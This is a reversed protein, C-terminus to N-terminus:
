KKLNHSEGEVSVRKKVEREQLLKELSVEPAFSIQERKPSPLDPPTENREKSSQKLISKTREPRKSTDEQCNNTPTKERLSEKPVVRIEM